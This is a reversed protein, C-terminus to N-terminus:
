EEAEARRKRLAELQAELDETKMTKLPSEAGAAAHSATQGLATPQPAAVPVPDAEVLWAALDIPAKGYLAPFRRTIMQYLGPRADPNNRNKALERTWFTQLLHHAIIIAERFEDHTNAWVRLTNLTVGIEAAWAEPFEGEQALMRITDCHGPDYKTNRGREGVQQGILALFSARTDSM